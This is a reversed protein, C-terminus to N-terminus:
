RFAVVLAFTRSLIMSSFSVGDSIFGVKEM